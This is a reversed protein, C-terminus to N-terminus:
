KNWNNLDRAKAKYVIENNNGYNLICDAEM